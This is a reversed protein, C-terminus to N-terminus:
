TKYADILKRVAASFNKDIRALLKIQHPYLYVRKAVVTKDTRAGNATPKRPARNQIKVEYDDPVPGIIDLKKGAFRNPKAKSYDIEYHPLMDGDDTMQIPIAGKIANKKNMNEEKAGM